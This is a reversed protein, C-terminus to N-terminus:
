RSGIILMETSGATRVYDDAAAIITLNKDSIASISIGPQVLTIKTKMPKLTTRELCKEVGRIDGKLFKSGRRTRRKIHECVKDSSNLHTSKIVQGTVEYIDSVRNGPSEHCSKKCHYFVVEIYENRSELTIFDALEGSGHDYFVVDVKKSTLYSGLFTHISTGNQTEFNAENTINVKNGKWDVTLIKRRDYPAFETPAPYFEHGSFWAFNWIYFQLPYNNLYDIINIAEEQNFVELIGEAKPDPTFFSASNISFVIPWDFSPFSLALNIVEDKNTALIEFECDLLDFITRKGKNQYCIQWPHAFANVHWEVAIINKPISSLQQSTPLIDLGSGTQVVGESNIKDGLEKCWDILLPIQLNQNRWVKSGSSYGITISEGHRSAKAFIHGRHFLRGDTKRVADQAHSGAIIRYTETNTSRVRNRMGINFCDLKELDRLIRNIRFLELIGHSGRCIHKAVIEYLSTSRRSANIFLLNAKKHFYIIFLDYETRQFIDMNSWRAQLSEKTILITTSLEPSYRHYVIEFNPPFEIDAELDVDGDVEYIKVHSYPKLSYLSLDQLEFDSITPATFTDINMRIRDEMQIKTESLNAIIEQWTADERYLKETEIEIQNPIALFKAQGIKDGSVRAFRGIFQLTIELSKHPIHIAAIKLQPFDFGEGLMSVCIIGDLKNSRLLAIAKKIHRYSYGSHIVQLNLHTNDQYIRKLDNARKKSDTRVMLAHSYGQGKDKKFIREAYKAIVIDPDDKGDWDVPYYEIEGFIGDEFAKRLPYTYIFKGGIEKKDKRFPTATFLVKRANPFTDLLKAWTRAPSHHAEDVLIMDFLEDPPKVIGAIGPSVVNPTSVCVDYKAYGFWDEKTKVRKTIRKTKPCKFKRSVCGCKKLTQLSEFEETIQDRVLISPTIVLVRKVRLLYASLILVATKGSGTPMVVIAPDERLTFHTLISHIAGIQSNRLGPNENDQIPLKVRNYYNFFYSM